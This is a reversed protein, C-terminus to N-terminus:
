RGADNLKGRVGEIGMFDKRMWIQEDTWKELKHM